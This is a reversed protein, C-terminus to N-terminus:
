IIIVEEDETKEQEKYKPPFDLYEDDFMYLCMLAGCIGLGAPVLLIIIAIMIFVSIM